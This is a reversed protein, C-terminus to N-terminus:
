DTPVRLVLRILLMQSAPERRLTRIWQCEARIGQLGPPGGFDLGAGVSFVSGFGTPPAIGVALYPSFSSDRAMQIVARASLVVGRRGIVNLEGGFDLAKRIWRDAGVTLTPSPAAGRSVFTLGGGGYPATQSCAPSAVLGVLVAAVGLTRVMAHRSITATAVM